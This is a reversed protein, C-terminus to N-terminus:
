CIGYEDGAKLVEAFVTMYDRSDYNEKVGTINMIKGRFIIMHTTSNIRLRDTTQRIIFKFNQNQKTVGADSKENTNTVSVSAWCQFSEAWRSIHNGIEDIETTNELFIVKQNLKGIEM